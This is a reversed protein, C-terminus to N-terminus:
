AAAPPTDDGDPARWQSVDERVKALDKDQMRIHTMAQSAIMRQQHTLTQDNTLRNLERLIADSNM